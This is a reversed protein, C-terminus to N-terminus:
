MMMSTFLVLTGDNLATRRLDLYAYNRIFYIRGLLENGRYFGGARFVYDQAGNQTCSIDVVSAGFSFRRKLEATQKDARRVLLHRPVGVNFAFSHEGRLSEVTLLTEGSPEILEWRLGGHQRMVVYVTRGRNDTIELTDGAHRRPYRLLVHGEFPDPLDDFSSEVNPMTEAETLASREHVQNVIARAMFGVLGAVVAVGFAIPGWRESFAHETNLGHAMLLFTALLVFGYAVILGFTVPHTLRPITSYCVAREYESLREEHADPESM